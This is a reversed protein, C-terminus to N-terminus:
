VGVGCVAAASDAAAEGEAVGAAGVADADAGQPPNDSHVLVYPPSESKARQPQQQRRTLPVMVDKAFAHGLFRFGRDFNTVRTKEPHLRLGMSGLSSRGGRGQAGLVADESRGLDCIM